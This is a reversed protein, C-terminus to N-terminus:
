NNIKFAINRKLYHVKFKIINLAFLVKHNNKVLFKALTDDWLYM